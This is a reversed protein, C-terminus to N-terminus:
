WLTPPQDGRLWPIDLSLVLRGGLHWVVWCSGFILCSFEPWSSPKRGIGTLALISWVAVIAAAPVQPIEHLMGGLIHLYTDLTYWEIPWGSIRWTLPTEFAKAAFLYGLASGSAFVASTGYSRSARRLRSRNAVLAVPALIATWSTLALTIVGALYMPRNWSSTPGFSRMVAKMFAPPIVLTLAIAVVLAM